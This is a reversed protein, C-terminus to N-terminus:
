TPAPAALRSRLMSWATLKDAYNMSAHAPSTSPLRLLPLGSPPGALTPLVSRVYVTAAMAGNFAVAEIRPHAVFFGAFDNVVLSKRDIAADLSGFRRASACVDWVALHRQQLIRLRTQYGLHPGAGFLAGMIRWFTNQPQAYYQAQSLSVRGPLSGM